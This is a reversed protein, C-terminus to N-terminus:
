ANERARFRRTLKLGAISVSILCMASTLGFPSGMAVLFALMLVGLVLVFVQAFTSKFVWNALLLFVFFGAM